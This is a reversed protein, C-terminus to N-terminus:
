ETIFFAEKDDQTLVAGGLQRVSEDILDQTSYFPLKAISKYYPCYFFRMDGSIGMLGSLQGVKRCSDTRWIVADRYQGLTIFYSGNEHYRIEKLHSTNGKMDFLFQGSKLDLCQITDDELGAFMRDYEPDFVASVVSLDFGSLTQVVECSSTDMIEVRNDRTVAAMRKGDPSVSLWLVGAKKVAQELLGSAASYMFLGDDGTLIFRENSIWDVERIFGNDKLQVARMDSLSIVKNGEYSRLVIYAGDPSICQPEMTLGSNDEDTLTESAKLTAADYLIASDRSSVLIKRDHDAFCATQITDESALTAIPSGSAEDWLILEYGGSAYTLLKKGDSSAVMTTPYEEHGTMEHIGTTEGFRILNAQKCDDRTVAFFNNCQISKFRGPLTLRYDTYEYGSGDSMFVRMSGDYSVALILDDMFLYDTITDGSVFTQALTQAEIDMLSLTESATFALLNEDYPAFKLDSANSGEVRREALLQRSALDYVTITSETESFLDLDEIDAVTHSSFALKGDKSFAMADILNYPAKLEQSLQRLKLDFILVSGNSMGVGAFRGSADLTLSCVNGHGGSSQRFPELDYTWIEQGSATDLLILEMGALVAMRKDMSLEICTPIYDYRWKVGMSSTDLCVLSYPNSNLVMLSQTDIFSLTGSHVDKQGGEGRKLLKGNAPDWLYIFGDNAATAVLKADPSIALANVAKSHNLAMDSYFRSRVRYVGLAENLAYEAEEMYPRDPNALDEPLAERAVMIARFRDGENLLRTSIDAMYLSQGRLTKEVQLSVLQSQHKILMAQYASFSGFLLFFLSFSISATLTRRVARERHRQKLDDFRCNLIPALLRLIETRLKKKMEKLSGARIDAALPEVEVTRVQTTGDEAPLEQRVFRLPEPFSDNPEGEILLALIRDHGHLAAFAEIEKTVWQSQPTRPSCIVILHESHELAHYINDALNSSTPLEDRDRFVRGVKKQSGKRIIAKPVKFTELRKHLLEAAAQDLGGHRYSIFADYQYSDMPPLVGSIEEFHTVGAMVM